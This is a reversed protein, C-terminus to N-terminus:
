ADDVPTPVAVIIFDAQSFERPDSVYRVNAAARLEAETVSGTPDHFKRYNRLKEDNLDYGITTLHKGFEVALPLGVYGLGVVAVSKNDFQMKKM